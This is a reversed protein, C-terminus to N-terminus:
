FDDTLCCKWANRLSFKNFPETTSKSRSVYKCMLTITQLSDNACVWSHSDGIILNCKSCIFVLPFTKDAEENDPLRISRSLMSKDCLENEDAAM